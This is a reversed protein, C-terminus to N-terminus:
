DRHSPLKRNRRIDKDLNPNFMQLHNVRLWLSFNAMQCNQLTKVQSNLAAPSQAQLKAIEKDYHEDAIRCSERLSVIEELSLSLSASM